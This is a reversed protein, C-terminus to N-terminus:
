LTVGHFASEETADGDVSVVVVVDVNTTRTAL